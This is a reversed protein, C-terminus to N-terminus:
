SIQIYIFFFLKIIYKSNYTLSIRTATFSLDSISLSLFINIPFNSFLFVQPCRFSNKTYLNTVLFRDFLQVQRTCLSLPLVIQYAIKMSQEYEVLWVSEIILKQRGLILFFYFFHFHNRICTCHAVGDISIGLRSSFSPSNHKIM